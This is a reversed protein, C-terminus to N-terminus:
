NFDVPRSIPGDLRPPDFEIDEGRPMALAEALSSGAGLLKRYAEISLLLHSPRGRDTILV